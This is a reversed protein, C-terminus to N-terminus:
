FGRQGQLFNPLQSNSNYNGVSNSNGGYPSSKGFMSSSMNGVGGGIAGGIPGGVATGIATGVAPGFSSLFGPSGQRSVVDQSYNGLGQQGLGFLSQSAQQKLNARLAGLRESLDAGARVGANRFGSSSLGGSGMGAFQEALGPITEQQYRQMEPAFFQEMLEPNDNLISYLYDAGEGFAGGAGEGQLANQLQSYLDQQEPLLTSVRKHKEPTGTFFKKGAKNWKKPALGFVGLDFGAM